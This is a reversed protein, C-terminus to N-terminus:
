PAGFAAHTAEEFFNPRALTREVCPAITEGLDSILQARATTNERPTEEIQALLEQARPAERENSCILLTSYAVGLYLNSAETIGLFDLNRQRAALEREIFSRIVDQDPGGGIRVLVDGIDDDAELCVESRAAYALPSIRVLSITGYRWPAEGQAPDLMRLLMRDHHPGHVIRVGVRPVLPETPESPADGGIRCTLTSWGTPSMMGDCETWGVVRNTDLRLALSDGRERAALNFMGEYMDREGGRFTEGLWVGNLSRGARLANLPIFEGCGQGQTRLETAASPHSNDVRTFDGLAADISTCASGSSSTERVHLTTQTARVELVHVCDAFPVACDVVDGMRALAICVPTPPENSLVLQWDTSAPWLVLESDDQSRWVVSNANAWTEIPHATSVSEESPLSTPDDASQVASSPVAGCAALLSSAVLVAVRLM